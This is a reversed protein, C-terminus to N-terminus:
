PWLQERRKLVALRSTLFSTIVFGDVELERYVVVIYKGVEVERIALLEGAGGGVILAPEAIAELVITQLGKLEGHEDTIHAWREDTLRISIGNKSIATENM